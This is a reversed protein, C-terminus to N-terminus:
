QEIRDSKDDDAPDRDRNEITTANEDFDSPNAPIFDPRLCQSRGRKAAIGPLRAAGFGRGYM